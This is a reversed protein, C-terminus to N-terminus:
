EIIFSQEDSTPTFVTIDKRNRVRSKSNRLRHGRRHESLQFTAPIVPLQPYVPYDRPNDKENRLPHHPTILIEKESYDTRCSVMQVVTTAIDLRYLKEDRHKM